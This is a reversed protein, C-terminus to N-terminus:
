VGLDKVHFDDLGTALFTLSCSWHVRWQDGHLYTWVALGLVPVLGNVADGAPLDKGLEGMHLVKDCIPDVM